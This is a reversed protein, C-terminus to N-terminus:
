TIINNIGHLKDTHSAASM